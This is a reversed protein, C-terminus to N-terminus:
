LLRSQEHNNLRVAGSVAVDTTLEHQTSRSEGVGDGDICVVPRVTVAALVSRPARGSMEVYLRRRCPPPASSGFWDSFEDAVGVVFVGRNM